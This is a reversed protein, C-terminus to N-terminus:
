GLNITFSTVSLNGNQQLSTSSLEMDGGGGTVTITGDLRYTGGSADAMRFYGATGTTAVTATWSGSRTLSGASAAAFPTSPLTITALLTGSASTDATAPQTGSYIKINGSAFMAGFLDATHNVIATSLKTTM